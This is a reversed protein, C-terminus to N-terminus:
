SIPLIVSIPYHDSARIDSHVRGESSIRDSVYIGDILHRWQFPPRSVATASEPQQVADRFGSRRLLTAADGKSVNLNFDGAVVVLSSETHQRADELAEGLQDLRGTDNGKSELHLNYSVFTHSDILVETILAIRGGLRRQFIEATPVFWRPRWFNSQHQFRIIREKSLPWPSLTALGHHAPTGNLGAGLEEFQRGFVYNMRLSRALESAIDRHQTRRVNLDVEQLLILDADATQLFNLIGSFQQGREINWSVVRVYNRSWPSKQQTFGGSIVEDLQPSNKREM